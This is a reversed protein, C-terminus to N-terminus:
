SASVRAPGLGDPLEEIVQGTDPHIIKM